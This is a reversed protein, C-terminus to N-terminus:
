NLGDEDATGTTAVAWAALEDYSNAIDLMIRKGEPDRTRALSRADEAM